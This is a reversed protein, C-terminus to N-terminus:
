KMLLMKKTEVIDSAIVRYLYIGSAVRSGDWEFSHVGASLHGDMLTTVRQGLMNFVDLRVHGARPLSLAIVTSPNFPNPYNEISFEQPLAAKAAYVPGSECAYTVVNAGEDYTYGALVVDTVTFCWDAPYTKTRDSTITAVGDGGTTGSKTSTNPANFYGYVVAGSLPNNSNDHITVDAVGQKWNNGTRTVTMAAVHMTQGVDFVTIYNNKTETDSGYANTATLEVTYTGASNYTYNPHQDTSTGVGDGFDWSWSTPDGTSLDTFDVTLPVPGSTPSGAFDAVPPGPQSSYQIYMEDVSVVDLAINGWTRDTDLVRVYITGTLGAPM